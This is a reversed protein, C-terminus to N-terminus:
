DGQDEEHEREDEILDEFCDDDLRFGVVELTRCDIINGGAHCRKLHSTGPPVEVGEEDCQHYGKGAETNGCLCIWEDSATSTINM